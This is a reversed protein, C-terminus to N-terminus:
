DNEHCSGAAHDQVNVAGIFKWCNPCYHQVQELSLKNHLDILEKSPGIESDKVINVKKIKNKHIWNSYLVTVNGEYDFMWKHRDYDDELDEHLLVGNQPSFLVDRPILESRSLPIIHAAVLNATLGTAICCIDRDVLDKRFIKQLGKNRDTHRGTACRGSLSQSKCSITTVSSKPSLLARNQAQLTNDYNKQAGALIDSCRIGEDKLDKYTVGIPLILSGELYDNIRKEAKRLSERAERLGITIEEITNPM